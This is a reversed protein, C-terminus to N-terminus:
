AKSSSIGKVMTMVVKGFMTRRNWRNAITLLSHTQTKTKRAIERIGQTM